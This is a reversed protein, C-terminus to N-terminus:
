LTDENGEATDSASGASQLCHQAPSQESVLTGTANFYIKLFGPPVQEWMWPHEARLAALAGITVEAKAERLILFLKQEWLYVRLFHTPARHGIEKQFTGETVGTATVKSTNGSQTRAPCSHKSPLRTTRAVLEAEKKGM